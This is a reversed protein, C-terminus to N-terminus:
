ISNFTNVQQICVFSLRQICIFKMFIKSQRPLMTSHNLRNLVADMYLYLNFDDVYALLSKIQMFRMHRLCSFFFSLFPCMFCNCNLLTTNVITTMIKIVGNAPMPSSFSSFFCVSSGSAVSSKEMGSWTKFMALSFVYGFAESSKSTM